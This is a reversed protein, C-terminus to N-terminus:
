YLRELVDPYARCEKLLDQVLDDLINDVVGPSFLSRYDVSAVGSWCAAICLGVVTTDKLYLPQQETVKRQHNLKM